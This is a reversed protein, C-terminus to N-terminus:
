EDPMGAKIRAGLRAREEDTMETLNGLPMADTLVAQAMVKQAHSKLQEASDFM